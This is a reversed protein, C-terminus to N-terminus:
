SKAKKIAAAAKKIAEGQRGQYHGSSPSFAGHMAECAALLDANVSDDSVNRSPGKVARVFEAALNMQTLVFEDNFEELSRALTRLKDIACNRAQIRRMVGYGSVVVMDGDGDKREDESM